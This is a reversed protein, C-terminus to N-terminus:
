GGFMNLLSHYLGHIGPGAAGLDPNGASIEMQYPAGGNPNASQMQGVPLQPSFPSQLLSSIDIM